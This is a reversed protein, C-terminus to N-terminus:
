FKFELSDMGSGSPNGMSACIALEQVWPDSEEMDLLPIKHLRADPNQKNENAVFQCFRRIKEREYQQNLIRAEFYAKRKALSEHSVQPRKRPNSISKFVNRGTWVATGPSRSAKKAIWSKLSSFPKEESEIRTVILLDSCFGCIAHDASVWLKKSPFIKAPDDSYEHNVNGVKDCEPTHKRSEVHCGCAEFLLTIHVCPAVKRALHSWREPLDEPRYSQWALEYALAQESMDVIVTLSVRTM